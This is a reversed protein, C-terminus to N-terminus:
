GRIKFRTWLVITVCSAGSRTYEAPAIGQYVEIAVVEHSTVFNNIDGPIMEMYPTDDLYYQVCGNGMTRDSMIVDGNMTSRVRLGPVQRLIDTVFQPHKNALQEPAIYYGFGSRKRQNFGVKDLAATRRATVLVPDMMAVFKPLTIAVRKEERSSLDVPVAAAVFGVHRAQLVNSGSPVNRMTFEGTESTVAVVDTGVLEVRTGANTRSGELRVTGSLAANGTKVRADVPSLFLTRALLEVPREGLSIPIEATAATGRRAQVTAEMSNPLGCIRFGGAADTSDIMLHPYRRLGSEKSIDIEVWAISVEARPVPALTEPDYIHGIVASEGYPGSQVRCSHRILTRASPVALLVFTSSDPGVRFPQTLLATGLTDLFPHFVGVQYTGPLVSDIVFKGVSDTQATARGGEIVIDAGSLYRRNLSDIVIGAIRGKGTISAATPTPPTNQAGLPTAFAILAFVLCPLPHRIM